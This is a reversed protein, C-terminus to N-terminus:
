SCALRLAIRVHDFCWNWKTSLLWSGIRVAMETISITKLITKRQCGEDFTKIKNQSWHINVWTEKKINVPTKNLQNIETTRSDLAPYWVFITWCPKFSPIINNITDSTKNKKAKKQAKKWKLKAGEIKIPHTQGGFPVCGTSGQPKGKTLVNNNSEEPIVIVSACWEISLDVKTACRLAKKVYKNEV